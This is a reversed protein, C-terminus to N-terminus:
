SLKHVSYAIEPRTLILYQLGGVISRYHSPDEIYYGMEGEVNKQLRYDKSSNMPTDIGKCELMDVKALLDRIYKRQSLYISDFDYLVEIGLFYSLKGLDKLAFASSFLKIFDELEDGNSGTIM